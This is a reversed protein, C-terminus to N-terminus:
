AVTWRHGSAATHAPMTGDEIVPLRLRNSYMSDELLADFAGILLAVFGLLAILTGIEKSGTRTAPRAPLAARCPGPSGTSATASPRM